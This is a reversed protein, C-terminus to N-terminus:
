YDGFFTPYAEELRGVIHDLISALESDAADAQADSMTLVNVASAPDVYFSDTDVTATLLTVDANLQMDTTGDSLSLTVIGSYDADSATEVPEISLGISVTDYGDNVRLVGSYADISGDSALELEISETSYADEVTMVANLSRTYINDAYDARLSVRSTEGDEEASVNVNLTGGDATEMLSGVISFATKDGDADPSEDYTCSFSEIGNTSSYAISFDTIQGSYDYASCNMALSSETTTMDIVYFAITTGDSQKQYASIEYSLSSPDNQDVTLKCAYEVSSIFAGDAYIDITLDIDTNYGFNDQGCRFNLMFTLGSAALEDAVGDFAGESDFATLLAGVFEDNEVLRLVDVILSTMDGSVTYYQMTVGDSNASVEPESVSFDGAHAEVTSEIQEPLTWNEALYLMDASSELLAALDDFYLGYANSMGGVLAVAATDDFQLMASSANEGGIFLDLILQMVSSDASECVALQLALDDLGSITMGDVTVSPNSLRIVQAATPEALAPSAIMVLAMLAALFSCLKKM